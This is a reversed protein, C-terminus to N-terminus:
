KRDIFILHLPWYREVYKVRGGGGSENKTAINKKNIKINESKKAYTTGQCTIICGKVGIIPYICLMLYFSSLCLLPLSLLSLAHPLPLLSLAHPLSLLSLAHPLFFLSLAHHLSLLSLAHPVFFLSKWPIFEAQRHIRAPRYSLGIGGRNRVGM